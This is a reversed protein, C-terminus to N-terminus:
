GWLEGLRQDRGCGFRYVRYRLASKEYFDQHYDEAAYFPGAPLIPTVIDQGLAEAADAKTAEAAARQEANAVYIATTYSQGRDCFQGGADTPDITRWFGRALEEYSVVSPDFVVRVAELHGTGGRVVQDYSPDVVSGGTFGSTTELVGPVKDFDAEVCWFCGGAFIAEQTQGAQTASPEANGGGGNPEDSSGACGALLLCVLGIWGIGIANM